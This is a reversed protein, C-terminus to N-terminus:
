ENTIEEEVYQWHYHGATLREKKCCKVISSYPSNTSNAAARATEFIQDLEVCYVKKGKCGVKKPTYNSFIPTNTQDVFAWHYGGTKSRSGNCCLSIKSISCNTAEAAKSLSEFVTDLEICYVRKQFKLLAQESCKHGPTGDGGKTINYGWCAPDYVWTHYYAIWYRERLNAEELTKINKELIEHSFNEWGYKKIAAAFAPQNKPRYGNGEALWRKTVDRCTIGIYSKGFSEGPFTLTHKYITWTSM